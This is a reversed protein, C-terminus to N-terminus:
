RIAQLLQDLYCDLLKNTEALSLYNIKKLLFINLENINLLKNLFKQM